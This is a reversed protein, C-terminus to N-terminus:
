CWVLHIFLQREQQTNLFCIAKSCSLFSVKGWSREEVGLEYGLSRLTALGYECNWRMKM